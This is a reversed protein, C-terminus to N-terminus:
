LFLCRRVFDFLQAFQLLLSMLVAPSVEYYRYFFKMDEAGEEYYGGIRDFVQHIVALLVLSPIITGHKRGVEREMLWTPQIITIERFRQTHLASADLSNLFQVFRPTSGLPVRSFNSGVLSHPHPLALALQSFICLLFPHFFSVLTVWSMM